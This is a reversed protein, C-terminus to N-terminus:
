ASSSRLISHRFCSTRVDFVVYFFDLGAALPTFITQLGTVGPNMQAHTHLATMDTTAIGGLVAVSAGVKM